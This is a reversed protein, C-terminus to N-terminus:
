REGDLTGGRRQQLDAQRCIEKWHDTFFYALMCVLGFLYSISISFSVDTGDLITGPMFVLHFAVVGGLYVLAALVLLVVPVVWIRRRKRTGADQPSVNM